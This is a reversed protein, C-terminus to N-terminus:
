KVTNRHGTPSDYPIDDESKDQDGQEVLRAKLKGVAKGDDDTTRNMVWMSPIMVMWPEQFVEKCSGNEQLVKMEKKMAAMVPPTTWEKRSVKETM